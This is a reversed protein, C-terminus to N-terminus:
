LLLRDTGFCLSTFIARSLAAITQVGSFNAINRILSVEEHYTVIEIKHVKDLITKIFGDTVHCDWLCRRRVPQVGYLAGRFAKRIPMAFQEVLHKCRNLGLEGSTGYDIFFLKVSKRAANYESIVDARHWQDFAFAAVRMGVFVQDPKM